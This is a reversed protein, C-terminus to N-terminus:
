FRYRYGFLVDFSDYGSRLSYDDNELRKDSIAFYRIESFLRAQLSAEYGIGLIAQYAFGYDANLEEDDMDVSMDGIGLGLGAYPRMVGPAGPPVFEYIANVMFADSKASGSVPDPDTNKLDADAGRHMYEAEISLSPSYAFGVAVGVAFGSDFDLGTALSESGDRADLDFDQDQPISWGGLLELYVDRAQARAEVPASILGGAGALIALASAWAMGGRLNTRDRQGM